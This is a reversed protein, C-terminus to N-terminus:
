PCAEVAAGPNRWTADRFISRAAGPTARSPWAPLPDTPGARAVLNPTLAQLGEASYIADRCSQFGLASGSRGLPLHGAFGVASSRRRQLLIGTLDETGFVTALPRAHGIATRRIRLRHHSTQPHPRWQHLGHVAEM